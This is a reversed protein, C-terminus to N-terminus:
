KWKHLNTLGMWFVHWYYKKQIM